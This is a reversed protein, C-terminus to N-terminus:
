REFIYSQTHYREILILEVVSVGDVGGEWM